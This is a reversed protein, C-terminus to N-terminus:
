DVLLERLQREGIVPRMPAAACMLAAVDDAHEAISYRLPEGATARMVTVRRFPPALPIIGFDEEAFRQVARRAGARILERARVPQLHIASGNRGQYEEATCEDGRGPRTGRKVAASEIGPVLASAEETLAQDGAAFIARVGLQSACMALQGFEGVATQNISLELHGFSQTHAMNARPTRSRAHQGVWAVADFGGEELGVPWSQPWGRMFEVRPDLDQIDVGSPGHGDAVLVSTAGGAFFGEAAANAEQTLLQRALPYYLQGPRTWELANQVGAVGELDTMLYIRM